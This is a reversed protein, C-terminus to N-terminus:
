KEYRLCKQPIVAGCKRIARHVCILFACGFIITVGQYNGFLVLNVVDGLGRYGESWNVAFPWFFSIPSNTFVSDALIHSLIMM